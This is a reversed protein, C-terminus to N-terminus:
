PWDMQISAYIHEYLQIFIYLFTICCAFLCSFFIRSGLYPRKIMHDIISCLPALLSASIAMSALFLMLVVFFSFVEHKSVGPWGEAWSPQFGLFVVVAIDLTAVTFAILSIRLGARM